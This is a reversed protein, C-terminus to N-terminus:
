LDAYSVFVVSELDPRNYADSNALHGDYPGVKSVRTGDCVVIQLGHEREWSCECEFSLYVKGDEPRFQIIAQSAIEVNKWVDGPGNIVPGNFSEAYLDASAKYYQYISPEAAQLIGRSNKQFNLLAQVTVGEQLSDPKEVLVLEVEDASVLDAKLKPGFYWETEQDFRFSGVSALEFSEQEAPAKPAPLPVNEHIHGFNFKAL